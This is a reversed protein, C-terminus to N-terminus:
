LPVPETVVAVGEAGPLRAVEAAVSTFSVSVHVSGVDSSVPNLISLHVPVPQLSKVSIVVTAALVVVYLLM